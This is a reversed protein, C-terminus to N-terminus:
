LSLLALPMFAQNYTAKPPRRKPHIGPAHHRLFSEIYLPAKNATKEALLSM